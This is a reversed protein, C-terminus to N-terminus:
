SPWGLFISYEVSGIITSTNFVSFSCHMQPTPAQWCAGNWCWKQHTSEPFSPRPKWSIEMSIAGL